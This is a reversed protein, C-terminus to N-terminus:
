EGGFRMNQSPLNINETDILECGSVMYTDARIIEYNMATALM